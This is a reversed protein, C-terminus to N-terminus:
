ISVSTSRRIRREHLALRSTFLLSPYIIFHFCIQRESLVNSLHRREQNFDAFIERGKPGGDIWDPVAKRGTIRQFTSDNFRNFRFIM